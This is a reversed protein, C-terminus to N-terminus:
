KELSGIGVRLLTSFIAIFFCTQTKGNVNLEGLDYILALYKSRLRDAKNEVLQPISIEKDTNATAYSQWLVRFSDSALPLNNVDLILLSKSKQM